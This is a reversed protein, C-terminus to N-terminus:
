LGTNELFKIAYLLFHLTIINNELQRNFHLNGIIKLVSNDFETVSMGLKHRLIKFMYSYENATLDNRKDLTKSFLTTISNFNLM